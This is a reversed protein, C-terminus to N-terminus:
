NLNAWYLASASRNGASVSGLGMSGTGRQLTTHRHGTGINNDGFDEIWGDISALGDGGSGLSLNSQAYTQVTSTLCGVLPSNPDNDNQHDTAQPTHTLTNNYAMYHAAAQAGATDDADFTINSTGAMTRFYNVRSLAADMYDQSSAGPTCSSLNGTWGPDVDNGNEHARYWFQRVDERNNMDVAYPGTSVAAGVAPAVSAVVTSAILVFTAVIGLSKKGATGVM